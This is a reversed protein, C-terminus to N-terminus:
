QKYHLMNDIKIKERVKVEIIREIIKSTMIGQYPGGELTHGTNKYVSALWIKSWDEPIKGDEVAANCVRSRGKLM